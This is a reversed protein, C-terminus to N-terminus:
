SFHRKPQFDMDRKKEKKGTKLENTSNEVAPVSKMSMLYKTEVNNKSKKFRENNKLDEIKLRKFGERSIM